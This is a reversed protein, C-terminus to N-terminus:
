RTEKRLAAVLQRLVRLPNNRRTPTFQYEPGDGPLACAAWLGTTHTPHTM